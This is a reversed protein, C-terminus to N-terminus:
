NFVLCVPAGVDIRKRSDTLKGSTKNRNFIVIDNTYQ